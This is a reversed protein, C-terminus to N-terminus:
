TGHVLRDAVEDSAAPDVLQDDDADIVGAALTMWRLEGFWLFVNLWAAMFVFYWVGSVVIFIASMLVMRGRASDSDFLPGTTDGEMRYFDFSGADIDLNTQFEPLPKKRVLNIFGSASGRRSDYRSAHCVTTNSAPAAATASRPRPRSCQSRVGGVSTGGQGMAFCPASLCRIPCQSGRSGRHPLLSCEVVVVAGVIPNPSTRGRGREALLLAREMWLPDRDVM